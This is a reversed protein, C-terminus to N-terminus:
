WNRKRRGIWRMVRKNFACGGVKNAVRLSNRGARKRRWAPFWRKEDARFCGWALKAGSPKVALEVLTARTASLTESAFKTRGPKANTRLTATLTIATRTLRNKRSAQWSWIGRIFARSRKCNTPWKGYNAHADV